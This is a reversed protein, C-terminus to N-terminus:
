TLFLRITHKVSSNQFFGYQLTGWKILFFLGPTGGGGWWNGIPINYICICIYIYMYINYIYLYLIHM